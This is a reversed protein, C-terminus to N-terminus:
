PKAYQLVDTYQRVPKQWSSEAALWLSIRKIDEAARSVAETSMNSLAGQIFLVIQSGGPGGLGASALMGLKTRIHTQSVEICSYPNKGLAAAGLGPMWNFILSEAVTPIIEGASCDLHRFVEHWPACAHQTMDIQTEQVRSLYDLVTENPLFEILNLVGTFTPGAVDTADFSGLSSYSDPIFPFGSRNAELNLFLAHTHNTHSVVLLALAAKLIAPATLQPYNNRLHLFDKAAFVISHGDLDAREPSVTM